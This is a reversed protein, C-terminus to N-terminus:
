YMNLPNYMNFGTVGGPLPVSASGPSVGSTAWSPTPNPIITPVNNPYGLETTPSDFLKNFMNGVTSAGPASLDFLDTIGVTQNPIQPSQQAEMMSALMEAMGAFPDGGAGQANEAAMRQIDLMERYYDPGPAYPTGQVPQYVAGLLSALAPASLNQSGQNFVSFTEPLAQNYAQYASSLGSGSAASGLGALAQQGFPM